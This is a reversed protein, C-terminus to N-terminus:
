EFLKGDYWTIEGAAYAETFSTVNPRTGGYKEYWADPYLVADKKFAQSTDVSADEGERVKRAVVIFRMDDMDWTCTALLLLSDDENVTVPCNFLSRLQLQYVYEMFEEDTDFDTKFFNFREGHSENNNTKILSIIKYEGDGFVTDFTFVPNNQYFSLTKYEKLEHFMLGTSKMNHGNIVVVKSDETLETRYDIFLAGNKDEEGDINHTLYYDTKDESAFVVPYDINTSPVTIWGRIDSNYNILAAFREANDQKDAETSCAESSEAEAAKTEDTSEEETSSATDAEENHYLDRYKDTARESLYPQIVHYYLLFLLAGAIATFCIISVAKNKSGKGAKETIENNDAIDSNNNSKVLVGDKLYYLKITVIIYAIDSIHLSLDSYCGKRRSM